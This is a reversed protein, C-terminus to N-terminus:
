IEQPVEQLSQVLQPAPGNQGLIVSDAIRYKRGDPAIVENQLAAFAGLIYADIEVKSCLVADKAPILRDAM